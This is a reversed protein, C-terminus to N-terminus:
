ANEMPSELRVFFGADLLRGSDDRLNMRGTKMQFTRAFVRCGKGEPQFYDRLSQEDVEPSHGTILLAGSPRLLSAAVHLLPWLDRAIRWTRGRNGRGSKAGHGYAPPDMVLLDYQMQRRQQRAAFTPVDDVYYKIIADDLDSTTAAIRAARVNPKAADVHVVRAGAAAMAMTSAGTYAFWNMADVAPLGDDGVRGQEAAIVTQRQVVDALWRWNSQQEPFIGIHGLPTMRIPMAFPGCDMVRDAPMPRA